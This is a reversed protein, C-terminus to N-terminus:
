RKKDRISATNDKGLRTFQRYVAQLLFQKREKTKVQIWIVSNGESELDPRRKYILNDRILLGTRSKDDTKMLNDLELKYGTFQNRTTTDNKEINFKNIIFIDPKHTEILHNLQDIRNHLAELSFGGSSDLKRPKMSAVSKM